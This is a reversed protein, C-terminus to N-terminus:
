IQKSHKIKAVTVRVVGVFITAIFEDLDFLIM